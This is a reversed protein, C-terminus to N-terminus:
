FSRGGGGHSHGSSSHHSSSGGSSSSTERKSRSVTSYLYLDSSRTVNLDGAIYSDAAAQMRVSKMGSKMLALRIAAAILGIVISVVVWNGIKVPVPTPTIENTVYKDCLEAFSDMAEVYEGYALHEDVIEDLMRDIRSDTLTQIGLGSTSIYCQRNGPEMSILMLAGDYTEGFGFGNYDFYDDAYDVYYKGGLDDATVVVVDFQLRDSIENLKSLMDAEESDSLLDAMDNLRLDCQVTSAAGLEPSVVLEGGLYPEVAMFYNLLGQYYSTAAEYAMWIRDVNDDSFYRDGKGSRYVNWAAAHDDIGVIIGDDSGFRDTYVAELMEGVSDTGYDGADEALLFCVHFGHAKDIRAALANVDKWEEETLVGLDDTVYVPSIAMAPVCLAACLVAAMLLSYWKKM